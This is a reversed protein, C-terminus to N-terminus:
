KRLLSFYGKKRIINGNPAILEAYFWYNDSPLQRGNYHGNWGPDNLSLVKLMKGFRNYIKVIGSKYFSQELGLIHWTDKIGDENPTFFKPYTIISTEFSQIGCGNIDKILITYIGGDLNDFNPSIQYDRIINSNSDLLSFEYNGLGINQTNITISNNESDDIIELSNISISSISSEIVNISKIDSECGANSIAKVSYIGGKSVNTNISNSIVKGSSDKWEYKYNGNPNKARLELLSNSTICILAKTDLEFSPKEKVIFEITTEDYCISYKPNEVRARISQSNTVFPNPLPSPLADNNEDFYKVLMGTQNGLLVSQIKSTDFSAINDFDTDCQEQVLISNAVPTSNVKFNIITEDYCKGNPDQSITNIVKATISQTPTAFPNPLPSPLENNKEDFYKVLVNTQNGIITNQIYSTDFDYIGDSDNDCQPNVIVSNAIPLKEVKLTIHHGLGLCDNNLKSDVRIYIDQSNPSDTNEYNSINTIVNQEALADAESKYYKILLQQNAPFLDKVEQTVSSFDFSAIGDSTNSGNDCKYFTKSFSNPIQTTSIILKVEAVEFCGNSNEVRAWVTDNSVTRNAYTTPNPIPNTNNLAFTKEEFFTITYNEPTSIIKEKVENLNINSFGNIDLNDCQKLSVSTNINPLENVEIIFSTEGSKSPDSLHEAKIYITEKRTSNIYSEPNSIINTLDVNKYYSIQYDSLPENILIKNENQTLDIKIIGDTKTGFSTNDCISLIPIQQNITNGIILGCNENFKTITGEWENGDSTRIIHGFNKYEQSVYSNFHLNRSLYYYNNVSSKFFGSIRGWFLSDKNIGNSIIRKINGNFDYVALFYDSSHFAGKIHNGDTSLFEVEEIKNDFAAVSGITIVENESIITKYGTGTYSHAAGKIWECIGKNNVKAIFFTGVNEKTITGDTNEFIHNVDKRWRDNSGSIYSNGEDDTTTSWAIVGNIKSDNLLSKVRWLFDGDKNFKILFTKTDPGTWNITNPNNTKGASYIEAQSSCYGTVYINNNKDSGIDILFESNPGSTKIATYWLLKGESNLKLVFRNVYNSDNGMQEFNSLNDTIHGNLYFNFKFNNYISVDGSLLIDGNQDINIKKSFINDITIHWLLEGDMNLKVIFGSSFNNTHNFITQSGKSDFFTGKVSHGIVYINGDKDEVSGFMVDRYSTISKETYVIWKLNGNYDHKTLYSGDKNKLNNYINNDNSAFTQKNYQGTTLFGGNVEELDTTEPDHYGPFENNNYQGNYIDINNHILTWCDNNQAILSFSFLFVFYFIKRKM